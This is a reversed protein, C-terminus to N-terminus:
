GFVFVTPSLAMEERGSVATKNLIVESDRDGRLYLGNIRTVTKTKPDRVLGLSININTTDTNGSTAAFGAGFNGSWAKLPPPTQAQASEIWITSLICFSVIVVILKM